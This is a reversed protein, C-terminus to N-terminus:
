GAVADAVPPNEPLGLGVVVVRNPLCVITDGVHDIRFNRICLRDPCDAKTMFASGNQIQLLNHGNLDIQRNESLDYEGFLEGGIEIRIRSAAPASHKRWQILLIGALASVILLFLLFGEKRKM